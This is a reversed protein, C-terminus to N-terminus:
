DIMNDVSGQVFVAGNGDSAGRFGEFLQNFDEFFVIVSSLIMKVLM